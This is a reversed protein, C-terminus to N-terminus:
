RVFHIPQETPTPARAGYREDLLGRCLASNFDTNVSVRRLQRLHASLGDPFVAAGLADVFAPADPLLQRGPAASVVDRRELYRSRQARGAEDLPWAQLQAISWGLWPQDASREDSMLHRILKEQRRQFAKVAFVQRLDDLNGSAQDGFTQAFSQGAALGANIQADDMHAGLRVSVRAVGPLAAVARRMDDAMLFAFNAACWYTPLRFGIDVAGALDVAVRDVFGLDVVSEDLEPDSVSDLAAWVSALLQREVSSAEAAAAPSM